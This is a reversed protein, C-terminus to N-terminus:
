LFRLMFSKRLAISPMYVVETLSSVSSSDGIAYLGASDMIAAIESVASIISVALGIYLKLAASFGFPMRRLYLVLVDARFLSFIRSRSCVAFILLMSSMWFKNMSVMASNMSSPKSM